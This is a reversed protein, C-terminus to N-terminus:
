MSRHVSTLAVMLEQDWAGVYVVLNLAFLQYVVFVFWWLSGHPM